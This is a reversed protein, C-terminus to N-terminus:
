TSHLIRWDAVNRTANLINSQEDITKNGKKMLNSPFISDNHCMQMISKQKYVKSLMLYATCHCKQLIVM